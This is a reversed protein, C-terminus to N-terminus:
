KSMAKSFYGKINQADSEVGRYVVKKIKPLDVPHFSSGSIDIVSGVGRLFDRNIRFYKKILKTMNLEGQEIIYM